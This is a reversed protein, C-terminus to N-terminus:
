YPRTPESIHILSLISPYQPKHGHHHDSQLTYSCVQWSVPQLKGSQTIRGHRSVHLIPVPLAIAGYIVNM